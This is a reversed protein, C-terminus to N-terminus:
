RSRWWQVIASATAVWAGKEKCTTILKEYVKNWNPFDTENFVRQHWLVTLIGGTKEICDIIKECEEWPNDQLFLSGDIIILPIEMLAHSKRSSMGLPKFPFSTGWRFGINRTFCLTSDYRFGIKEQIKWTEPINLNGYHQRVGQVRGIINELKNKEYKLRTENNYSGYSGHLGIEWGGKVLKKMIEVIRPDNINYRGTFLKWSKLDFLHPKGKENLFFFTSRVNLRSEM